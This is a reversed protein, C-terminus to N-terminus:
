QFLDYGYVSDFVVKAVSVVSFHPILIHDALKVINMDEKIYSCMRTHLWVCLM